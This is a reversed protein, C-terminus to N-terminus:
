SVVELNWLLNSFDMLFQSQCEICYQLVYPADLPIEKVIETLYQGVDIVLSRAIIRACLVKDHIRRCFSCECYVAGEVQYVQALHLEIDEELSEPVLISMQKESTKQNVM